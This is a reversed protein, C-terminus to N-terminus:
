PRQVQRRYRAPSVGFRRGFVRTLHSQDAFGSELAVEAISLNSEALAALANHLRTTRLFQGPTVGYYRHFSRALHVRHVGATRALSDGSLPRRFLLQLTRRAQDLWEPAHEEAGVDARALLEHMLSETALASGLTEEQSKRHLEHAISSATRDRRFTNGELVSWIRDGAPFRDPQLEMVAFVAGESGIRIAHATGAKSIRVAGATCTMSDGAVQEEFRGDLLLCVHPLRHRHGRFEHGGPLETVEISVGSPHVAPRIARM